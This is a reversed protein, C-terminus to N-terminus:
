DLTPTEAVPEVLQGEVLVIVEVLENEEREITAPLILQVPLTYEGAEVISSLNVPQIELKRSKKWNIDRVKIPVATRVLQMGKLELGEGLGTAQPQGLPAELRQVGALTFDIRDPNISNVVVGDPLGTVMSSQLQINAEGFPEDTLDIVISPSQGFQRITEPVRLSVQATTTELNAVFQTEPNLTYQITAEVQQVYVTESFSAKFQQKIVDVQWSGLVAILLSTIWLFNPLWKRKRINEDCDDEGLLNSLQNRLDVSDDYRIEKLEGNVAHSVVGREESVVLVHSDSRESLGIAALHRTGLHAGKGEASALPLVAGIRVIRNNRIVVAGDHRPCHPDFLSLLLSRNVKADVEEGGSILGDEDQNGPFVLLAGIRRKKLQVLTKALDPLIEDSQFIRPRFLNGRSAAQYVRGLEPLFSLFLIVIAPILLLVVLLGALPLELANVLFGVILVLILSLLLRILRPYALLWGVIIRLVVTCIIIDITFIWWQQM